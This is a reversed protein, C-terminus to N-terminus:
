KDKEFWYGVPIGLLGTAYISQDPIFIIMLMAIVIIILTLIFVKMRDSPLKLKLTEPIQIKGFWFGVVSGLLGTGFEMLDKFVFIIVCAVAIFILTLIWRMNEFGSNNDKEPDANKDSIEQFDDEIDEKPHPSLDPNRLNNAIMARRTANHDFARYLENVMPPQQEPLLPKLRVVRHNIEISDWIWSEAPVSDGKCKWGCPKYRMNTFIRKDYYAFQGNLQIVGYLGEQYQNQKPDRVIGDPM